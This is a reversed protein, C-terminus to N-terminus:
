LWCIYDNMDLTTKLDPIWGKSAQALPWIWPGPDSDQIESGSMQFGLFGIIVKYSKQFYLIKWGQASSRTLNKFTYFKGGKSSIVKYFKPIYLITRGLNEMKITQNDFITCGNFVLIWFKRDSIKWHRLWFNEKLFKGLNYNQQTLFKRDLSLSDLIKWWEVCFHWEFIKKGLNELWEM